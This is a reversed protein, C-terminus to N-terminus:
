EERGNLFLLDVRDVDTVIALVQDGATFVKTHAEVIQLAALFDVSVVALPVSNVQDLESM